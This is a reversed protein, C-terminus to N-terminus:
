ELGQSNELGENQQMMQSESLSNQIFFSGRMLETGIAGLFHKKAEHVCNSNELKNRPTDTIGHKEM